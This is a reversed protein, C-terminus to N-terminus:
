RGDLLLRRVGTDRWWAADDRAARAYDRDLLDAFAPDTRALDELDEAHQTMQHHIADALVARQHASPGYGDVLAALNRRQRLAVDEGAGVGYEVHWWDGAMLPAWRWAAWALDEVPDGPRAFDWDLVVLSGDTRRVTNYPSVDHHVVVQGPQLTTGPARRWPRGADPAFGAQAAQFDRVWRGVAWCADPTGFWEPLPHSPSLTGVDGPVFELVERASEDIGLVLPAGAFGEASLHDLLAHVAPTWPGVPRRVTDGVRVVVTTNGGSLREEDPVKEM